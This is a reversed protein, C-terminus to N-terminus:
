IKYKKEFENRSIVKIGLENAKTLKSSSADGDAYIVLTTNKSVSSTVSGGHAEIFNTIDESRFGTLVVKQGKMDIDDQIKKDERKEVKFTLDYSSNNRLENLFKNFKKLNFSFKQALIDSFGDVEMIKDKIEGTKYKVFDLVNPYKKVIERIKKVGLGSGFVLSGAMLEPLKIKLFANDIQNYIKTVMKKGLGSIEYLDEDKESSAKVISIVTQYGADFLKSIIGESLFKVGIQRFFHLNQKIYIKRLIEDTAGTVIIEVGTENWKYLVNPMDPTKSPKVIKVIYPIVDGSRVIKIISGKGINNDKIYKANHGTVYTVTTNGSLVVPEIKIIPQLYGHMTPEWIIEEVTADKMNTTSNMKFAMAHKPNTDTQKYIKSDDAIVLGDILFESDNRRNHLVMELTKEIKQQITLDDDEEDIFDDYDYKENWVTKFGWKELKELQESLKCEPYLIAYTVYQAKKAIRTDIKDTNILGAMTSRPNKMDPDVNKVINEFDTNSIVVEGRISTNKPMNEITKEDVLYKLLHKKSTGIDTQKKTFVDVNGQDDKHIQVSIGDLKDMVIYPGKYTKFWRELTKEGPKIKNLSPMPYPLSIDKDTTKTVGTQFLFANKPDREKLVDIMVDYIEDEVLPRSESYYFDSMKQLITVLRNIPISRAYTEPDDLIKQMDKFGKKTKKTDTVVDHNSSM